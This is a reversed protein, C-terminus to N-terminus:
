QMLTMRDGAKKLSLRGANIEKYLFTNGIGVVKQAESVMELDTSLIILVRLTGIKLPGM